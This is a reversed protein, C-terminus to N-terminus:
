VRWLRVVEIEDSFTSGSFRDKGLRQGLVGGVDRLVALELLLAVGLPLAHALGAASPWSPPSAPMIRPMVPNPRACPCAAQPAHAQSTRETLPLATSRRVLMGGP